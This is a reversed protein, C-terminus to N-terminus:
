FICVVFWYFICVGLEICFSMYSSVYRGIGFVIGRDVGFWMGLGIGFVFSGMCRGVGFGVGICSGDGIGFCIDVGEVCEFFYIDSGVGLGCGIDVYVDDGIGFCVGVVVGVGFVLILGIWLVLLM